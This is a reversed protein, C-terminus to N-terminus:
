SLISCFHARPGVKGATKRMISKARRNAHIKKKSKGWVYERQYKPVFYVLKNDPNLLDSVSAKAASSIM